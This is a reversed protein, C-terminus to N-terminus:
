PLAPPVPFRETLQPVLFLAIEGDRALLQLPLNRARLEEFVWSPRGIVAFPRRSAFAEFRELHLSPRLKALLALARNESDTGTRAIVSPPKLGYVLRAVLPAPAYQALEVFTLGDSVLIPISPVAPTTLVTLSAPLRPADRFEFIRAASQAILAILLGAAFTRLALTGSAHLGAAILGALGIVAPLVYRDHWVGTIFVSMLLGVLPLAACTALAALEHGPMGSRGRPTRPPPLWGTRALGAIIAVLALCLAFPEGLPTLLTRYVSFAADAGPRSWFGRSWLRAVDILPRWAALLALPVLLAVWVGAALRSRRVRMAEGVALPIVLLVAYYHSALAALLAGSLLLLWGFRRGETHEPLTAQQWALLSLAAAGLVVGYPRGEYAYPSAGSLAIVAATVGGLASGCRTRVFAAAAVMMLAFGLVSPLRVAVRESATLRASQQVLWYYLPPNLDVGTRLATWIGNPQTQQAITWTFIEDHWLPRVRARALAGALFLLFLLLAVGARARSLGPRVTEVM